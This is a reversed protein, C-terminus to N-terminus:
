VAVAVFQRRFNFVGLTLPTDVGILHLSEQDIRALVVLQPAGDFIGFVIFVPM